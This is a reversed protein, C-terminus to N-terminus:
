CPPPGPQGWPPGGPLGGPPGGQLLPIINIM